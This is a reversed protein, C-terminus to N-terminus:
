ATEGSDEEPSEGPMEAAVVVQAPRLLRDHLGYGKRLVELVQGPSAEESPIVTMAEHRQPDFSEGVPDIVTVSFKEFIQDLQRMMLTLGERLSEPVAADQEDMARCADDMADRLGLLERALPESRYRSAAEQDRVHRKRMNELEAHARALADQHRQLEERLQQEPDEVESEPADGAEVESEEEEPADEPEPNLQETDDMFYNPPEM